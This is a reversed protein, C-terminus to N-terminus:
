LKMEKSTFRREAFKWGAGARVIRDEYVGAQLRPPGGAPALYEFTHTLMAGTDGDIAMHGPFASFWVDDFGAMAKTWTALISERGVVRGGRFCWVADDAWCSAYSDVDRRNIADSYADLLERVALRDGILGISNSETM